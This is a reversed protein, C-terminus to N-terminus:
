YRKSQKKNIYRVARAAGTKIIKGDNMLKNLLAIAPHKAIKLLEEVNQRTVFGKQEIIELIATEQSEPTMLDNKAPKLKPLTLVFSTPASQLVPKEAAKGYSEMIKGIGTGYSEILDLRYFIDAIITNRPQSVGNLIDSITIGKVLGGISIFEMRDGYINIITSGSYDYDRHIVTNLLTERIAESPYDPNDIRKLGDFIPNQSNNLSIYEYATDTQKLISGYFEKRAKFETKGSGEYVACKISHECQDSLLMPANTYYGDSDILRLTRMNSDTLSMGAKAFYERTYDFTLEQNLSRSKDFTIGDSERLM